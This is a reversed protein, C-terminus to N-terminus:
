KERNLKEFFFPSFIHISEALEPDKQRVENM